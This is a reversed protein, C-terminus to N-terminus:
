VTFHTFILNWGLAPWSPGFLSYLTLEVREKVEASPPLPHNVDHQWQKVGRVRFLSGTGIKVSSYTTFSITCLKWFVSEWIESRGTNIHWQFLAYKINCRLINIFTLLRIGLTFYRLTLQVFHTELIKHREQKRYFFTIPTYHYRLLIYCKTLVQQVSVCNWHILLLGESM